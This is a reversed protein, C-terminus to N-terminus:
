WLHIFAHSPVSINDKVHIELEKHWLANEAMELSVYGISKQTIGPNSTAERIRDPEQKIFPVRQGEFTMAAKTTLVKVTLYPSPFIPLSIQVLVSSQRSTPHSSILQKSLVLRHAAETRGALPHM